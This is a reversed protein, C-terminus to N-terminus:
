HRVV